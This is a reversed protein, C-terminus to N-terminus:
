DTILTLGVAVVVKTDKESKAIGLSNTFESNM